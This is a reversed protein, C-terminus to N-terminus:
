QNEYRLAPIIESHNSHSSGDKLKEFVLFSHFSFFLSTITSIFSTNPTQSGRWHSLRYLFCLEVERCLVLCMGGSLFRGRGRLSSQDVCLFHDTLLPATCCLNKNRVRVRITPFACSSLIFAFSFFLFLLLIDPIRFVATSFLKRVGKLHLHLLLSIFLYILWWLYILSVGMNNNNNRYLETTTSARTTHGPAKWRTTWVQSSNM